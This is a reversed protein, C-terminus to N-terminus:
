VQAPLNFIYFAGSFHLTTFHGGTSIALVNFYIKQSDTTWYQYTNAHPDPNFIGGVKEIYQLPNYFSTGPQIGFSIVQPAYGLGHIYSTTYIGSPSGDILDVTLQTYAVVQYGTISQSRDYIDNQQDIIDQIAKQQGDSTTLDYVSSDLLTGM